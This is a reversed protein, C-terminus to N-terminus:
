RAGEEPDTGAADDSAPDGVLAALLRSSTVDDGDLRASVRGDRLVVVRDSGEVLEDSESSILVVGLGRAALEDILGQVERKAGVDIGRTPEDLLFVRPETCLWRAILVKQQNGGSLQSVLQRPSSVKIGLRRVFTDVLADVKRDSIVGFTSVRDMVALVINDRVSLEPVIGEAKRDESLLAVGASLSARVSNRRVPRGGVRVEGGDTALAGYVAKVTESRGSGLLGALGLVEGQHVDFTVDHLAARSDLGTVSLVPDASLAPTSTTSGVGSGVLAGAPAPAAGGASGAGTAGATAPADGFGTAGHAAVDDIDRGLMHSILERRSLTAMEGTHVVRGDRLITVADCLQWLEDLRHSVFVIAVGQDRLRRAVTFLTDVERRELSSTPEDMIVVRADISVARALAIMQQIGLGLRGLDGTVDVDVGLDRTIQRAEREMRRVDVLGLRTRPERGLFVNRAVSLLPVLNVEQYVTSIGAAQADAARGFSTEAGHHLLRGEDPRHVGTLVKILTSKGAGNEGVLAHISGPQVSFSVGSLATVGAFRKTVGDAQLAPTTPQEATAPPPPSTTTM